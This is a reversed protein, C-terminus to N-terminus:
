ILGASRLQILEDVEATAVIAALRDSLVTSLEPSLGTDEDDNRPEPLLGDGMMMFLPSTDVRYDEPDIDVPAVVTPCFDTIGPDRSNVYIGYDGWTDSLEPFGVEDDVLYVPVIIEGIKERKIGEEEM